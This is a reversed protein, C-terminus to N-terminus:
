NRLLKTYCVNYSTIHVNFTESILAIMKAYSTKPLTEAAAIVMSKPMLIASSLYNAQWEMRDADTWQSLPKREAKKNDIRCQVMPAWDDFLSLQNPNYGFHATHTIVEYLM